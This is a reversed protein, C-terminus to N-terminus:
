SSPTSSSRRARPKQRSRRGRAVPEDEVGMLRCLADVDEIRDRKLIDGVAASWEPSGRELETLGRVTGRQRGM